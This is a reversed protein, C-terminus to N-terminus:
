LGSRLEKIEVIDAIRGSPNQMVAKGQGGWIQQVTRLFAEAEGLSDFELDIM